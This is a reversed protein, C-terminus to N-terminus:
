SFISYSAAWIQTHTHDKEALSYIASETTMTWGNGAYIRRARLDRKLNAIKGNEDRLLFAREGTAECVRWFPGDHLCSHLLELRNLIFMGAESGGMAMKYYIEGGVVHWSTAEKKVRSLQNGAEAFNFAFADRVRQFGLQTSATKADKYTKFTQYKM